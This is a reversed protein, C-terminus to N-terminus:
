FVDKLLHFIRSFRYLVLAQSSAAAVQHGVEEPFSSGRKTNVLKILKEDNTQRLIQLQSSSLTIAQKLALASSDSCVNAFDLYVLSLQQLKEDLLKWNKKM